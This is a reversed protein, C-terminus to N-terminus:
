AHRFYCANIPQAVWGREVEGSTKEWCLRTLEAGDSKRVSEMMDLNRQFLGGRRESQTIAAGM